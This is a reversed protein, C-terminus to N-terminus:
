KTHKRIFELIPTPDKMGHSHGKDEVIVTIDGGLAKYRKELVADNEDYRVAMDKSGCVSLIPIGAKALPELMDIPSEKSAMAEADTKFGFKKKFGAWSGPAGKAKYPSGAVSQGAMWSQINLVGNDVYISEVKEPNESAWRFLSLTGRSFSAMNCKKSFGHEKTVYEYAADINKNGSPHGAVDGHAIVVHYGEDVLKLDAENVKGLAEWFLSRWLWPKGPAAKKPCVIKVGTRNNIRFSYIDYGKFDAKKGPFAQAEESSKTSVFSNKKILSLSKEALREGFIRYGDKTYHVDNFPKDNRIKNNLDDCNVWAGRPSAEAFKVQLERMQQWQPHKGSDLSYDSLRGLVFNIDKRGLDTELQKFLGKLSQEYVAVQNTASDNEGQMWVFTVTLIERDKISAKVQNMLREYLDGKFKSPKGQVSKWDKYWRQISQGGKADKVVIVNEAGFAKIVAPTFSVAPDLAAMNSQGSLIFLHAPQNVDKGANPYVYTEKAYASSLIFLLILSWIKM